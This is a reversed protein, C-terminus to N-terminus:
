VTAEIELFGASNVTGPLPKFRGIEGIFNLARSSTWFSFNLPETSQFRWVAAPKPSVSKTARLHEMVIDRNSMTTRLLVSATTAGPFGGGGGTRYSNTALAFPMDAKIPEDAFRLDVIRWASENLLAGSNDYRPPRTPDIAYSVGAIFDHHYGIANRPLLPQADIGSQIQLYISASRELWELIEAGTLKIVRLNNPFVYLDALNGMSIPGAAIETYGEPGAAGGSRFPAAASLVPLDSHQTGRLEAEAFATQASNILACGADHGIMSFYSHLPVDTHGVPRRMHDLTAEHVPAALASVRAHSEIVPSTQSGNRVVISRTECRFSSLSWSKKSWRLVLDVIALHSGGYGPMVVPTGFAEGAQEDLQPITGANEGPLVLHQHGALIVDIESLRALPLIANETMPQAEGADAGTHALAVVIDAGSERLESARAQATEVIDTTVVRDKLHRRDWDTIQPTILGIVGVRIRAPEGNDDQIELEIIESAQFLTQDPELGEGPVKWVNSLLVPCNSGNFSNLCFDLGFNFDHNGPVIADFCLANLAAIMPHIDTSGGAAKQAVFDGLPTGQLLDGVDFLLSNPVESRATEILSATRAFGVAPADRNGFYDYPVLHAHLDSTEMLRLTAHRVRPKTTNPDPQDVPGKALGDDGGVFPWRWSTIYWKLM